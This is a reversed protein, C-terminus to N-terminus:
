MESSDGEETARCSEQVEVGKGTVCFLFPFCGRDEVRHHGGHEVGEDVAQPVRLHPISQASGHPLDGGAAM